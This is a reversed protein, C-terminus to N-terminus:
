SKLEIDHKLLFEHIRDQVDLNEILKGIISRQGYASSELVLIDNEHIDKNESMIMNVAELAGAKVNGVIVYLRKSRDYESEIEDNIFISQSRERLAFYTSPPAASYVPVAMISIDDNILKKYIYSVDDDLKPCKSGTDFCEYACNLCPNINLKVTNLRSIKYKYSLQNDIYDLVGLCNGKSNRGSFSMLTVNM